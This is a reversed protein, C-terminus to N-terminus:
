FMVLIQQLLVWHSIHGKFTFFDMLCDGNASVAKFTTKYNVIFKWGLLVYFRCQLHWWLNSYISYLFFFIVPMLVQWHWKITLIHAFERISFDIDKHLICWKTPIQTSQLQGPWLLHIVIKEMQLNYVAMEVSLFFLYWFLIWKIIGRVCEGEYIHSLYKVYIMLSVSFWLSITM